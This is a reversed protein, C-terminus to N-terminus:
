RSSHLVYEVGKPPLYHILARAPPIGKEKLSSTLKDVDDEAAVLEGKDVAIWKGPHDELWRGSGAAFARMNEEFAVMEAIIQEKNKEFTEVATKGLVLTM